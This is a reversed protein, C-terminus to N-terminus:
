TGEVGGGMRGSSSRRSTSTRLLHYLLFPHSESASRETEVLTQGQELLHIAAVGLRERAATIIGDPLMPAADCIRALVGVYISRTFPNLKGDPMPTISSILDEENMALLAPLYQNFLADMMPKSTWTPQEMLLRLLADTSRFTVTPFFQTYAPGAGANVRDRHDTDRWFTGWGSHWLESIAWVADKSVAILFSGDLPLASRGGDAPPYSPSRPDSRWDTPSM